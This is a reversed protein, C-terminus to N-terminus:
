PRQFDVHIQAQLKGPSPKLTLITTKSTAGPPRCKLAAETSGRPPAPYSFGITNVGPKLFGDLDTSISDDYVGVPVGNVTVTLPAEPTAWVALVSVESCPVGAVAVAPAPAQAGASAALLVLALSAPPGKLHLRSVRFDGLRM